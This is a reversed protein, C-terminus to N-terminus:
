RASPGRSARARRRAPIRRRRRPRREFVIRTALAGVEVALNRRALAPRLYAVAASCRRGDRITIQSGASAKRSRATTTTPRPIARGGRRGRPLGRGASRRYRALATALPGDGGRYADAGGEWGEQRRFYPLVACLVLAAPGGRGLPRLRRSPRACLGHRQDLVLRRDGQRARMRHAPRRADPEPETFYMWDHLRRELIRGWGLPIHIWRIATGAAPRSCCCARRRRGRDAPQRARLRGLGRRRHRLRLSEGRAAMAATM